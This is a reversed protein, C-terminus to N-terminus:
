RLAPSGRLFQQDSPTTHNMLRRVAEQEFPGYAPPSPSNTSIFKSRPYLDAALGSHPPIGLKQVTEEDIDTSSRPPVYFTSITPIQKVIEEKRLDAITFEDM